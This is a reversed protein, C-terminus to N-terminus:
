NSYSLQRIAEELKNRSFTNFRGPTEFTKLKKRDPKGKPDRLIEYYGKTHLVFTKMSEDQGSPLIFEYNVADGVEYLIQYNKDDDQILDLVNNGNKDIAKSASIKRSNINKPNSQDLGVYDVEWFMQGWVLKIKITDSDIQSLDIPLIDDKFAMPGVVNYYDIFEWVNDKELYISIPINQDLSWQKLKKSSETNQHQNWKQYKDGFLDLFEGYVYDLWFTNRARIILKCNKSRKLNDFTLIVGDTKCDPNESVSTTYYLSDKSNIEKKINEGAINIAKNAQKINQLSHITGYKDILVKTDKPHDVVILEALNTYQIEKAENTMKMLYKDDINKFDSLLLYDDREMPANIAGSYVEGELTYHDGQDTYVFPCSSKTAAVIVAVLGVVVITGGIFGSIWSFSTAGNAPEYIEIKEIFSLPITVKSDSNHTLETTYIHVENLVPSENINRNKLYRNFKDPDTTKYLTRNSPLPLAEGILSNNNELKINSLHWVKDKHHLILYKQNKEMSDISHTTARHETSVKYYNKCGLSYLTFVALLLLSLLLKSNSSIRSDYIHM